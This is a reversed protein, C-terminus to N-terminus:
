DNPLRSNLVICDKLRVLAAALEQRTVPQRGRFLGDPYGTMIGEDIARQVWPQAWKDVDPETDMGAEWGFFDAIGDALAYGIRQRGGPTVLLRMDSVNTHFGCEILVTPMNTNRHVALYNRGKYHDRATPFFLPLEKATFNEAIADLLSQGFPASLPGGKFCTVGRATASNSADTHISLAYDAESANIRRVEENLYKPYPWRLDDKDNRTLVVNCEASHICELLRRCADAIEWAGDRESYGELGTNDPWHAAPDLCITKMM